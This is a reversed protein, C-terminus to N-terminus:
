EEEDADSDGFIAHKVAAAAPAGAVADDDDDVDEVPTPPRAAADDDDPFVDPATLARKAAGAAAEEDETRKRRRLTVRSPRAVDLAGGDRGRQARRRLQVRKHVPVYCARGEGMFLVLLQAEDRTEYSYERVWEAETAAGEAPGAQAADAAARRAEAEAPAFYVIIKEPAQGDAGSLAYSKMFAGRGAAQRLAADAAPLAAPPQGKVAPPLKPAYAVEALPDQDFSLHVFADAWREFDPLVPLVEVARLAPNTAHVPAHAVAAFSAEIAAAQEARADRGRAGFASGGEAALQREKLARAHANEDASGQPHPLCRTLVARLALALRASVGGAAHAARPPRPVVCGLACFRFAAAIAVCRMAVASDARGLWATHPATRKRRVKPLQSDSLYLTRMLWGAKATPKSKGPRFGPGQGPAPGSSLPALLAEDKPHLPRPPGAPVRHQEADMPDLSLGLETEWPLDCPRDWWLNFPRYATFRSRDVM